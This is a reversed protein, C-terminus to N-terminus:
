GVLAKLLQVCIDKPNFVDPTSPGICSPCGSECRCGEVLELSRRLLEPLADYIGLALGVGGARRDFLFITPSMADPDGTEDFAYKGRDTLGPMSFWRASQDGVTHGIDGASCMMKLAAVMWPDAKLEALDKRDGASTPAYRM